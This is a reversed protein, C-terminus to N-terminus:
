NFSEKASLSQSKVQDRPLRPWKPYNKDESTLRTRLNPIKDQKHCYATPLKDTQRQKSPCPKNITLIFLLKWKYYFLYLTKMELQRNKM